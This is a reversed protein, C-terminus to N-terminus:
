NLLRAYKYEFEKLREVESQLECIEDMLTEKKRIIIDIEAKQRKILDVIPEPLYKARCVVLDCELCVYPSNCAMAKKIEDTM